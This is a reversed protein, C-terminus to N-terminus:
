RRARRSPRRAAPRDVPMSPAAVDVLAIGAAALAGGVLTLTVARSSGTRALRDDLAPAKDPANEVVKGQVEVEVDAGAEEEQGNPAPTADLSRTPASAAYGLICTAFVALTLAIVVVRPRV